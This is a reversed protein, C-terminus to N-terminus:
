AKAMALSILERSPRFTVEERITELVEVTVDSRGELLGGVVAEVLSEPTSAGSSIGIRPFDTRWAPRIQDPTMILHSEPGLAEAVERLRNSNSSTTSGVILVLDCAAALERIAM